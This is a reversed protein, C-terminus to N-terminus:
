ATLKSKFSSMTSLVLEHSQFSFSIFLSLIEEFKCWYSLFSNLSWCGEVMVVCPDVGLLLLCMTGGIHFGHGKVSTLGDKVWIDNCHQMFWAHSMPSWLNSSTEFAFLPAHTPVASNSALHHELPMTLSCQCTSDMINVDEIAEKTKKRPLHINM